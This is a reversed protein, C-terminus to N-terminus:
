LCLIFVKLFYHNILTRISIGSLVIYSLGIFILFPDFEELEQLEYKCQVSFFPFDFYVYIKKRFDLRFTSFYYFM